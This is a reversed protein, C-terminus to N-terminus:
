FEQTATADALTGVQNVNALWISARSVTAGAAPVTGPANGTFETAPVAGAQAVLASGSLIGAPGEYVNGTAQVTITGTAADVTLAGNIDLDGIGYGTGLGTGPAVSLSIGSSGAGAVLSGHDTVAGVVTLAPGSPAIRGDRLLLGPGATVAGAPLDFGLNTDFPGLEAIWNGSPATDPGGLFVAFGRAGGSLLSAGIAGLSEDISSAANLQVSGALDADAHAASQNGWLTGGVTIMCNSISCGANYAGAYGALITVTGGTAPTAGGNSAFVAGHISVSGITSASGGSLNVQGLLISDIGAWVTGNVLLTGASSAGAPAAEIDATETPVGGILPHTFTLAPDDGAHVLTAVDLNGNDHVVISGTALLNSQGIFSSTFGGDAPLVGIQGIANLEPLLISTTGSATSLVTNPTLLGASGTLANVTIVDGAGQTILGAGPLSSNAAYLALTDAIPTVNLPTDISIGGARLTAGGDTSGLALTHVGLPSGAVTGGFTSILDLDALAVSLTGPTPALVSGDVSLINGATYPAIAVMGDPATVIPTGPSGEIRLADAALLVQGPTVTSGAIVTSNVTLSGAADLSGTGTTTLHDIVL